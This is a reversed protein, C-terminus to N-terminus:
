FDRGLIGWYTLWPSGSSVERVSRTEAHGDAFLMPGVGNPTESTEVGGGRDHLIFDEYLVIKASPFVVGSLLQPGVLDIRLPSMADPEFFAPAALFATSYVYTSPLAPTLGQFVAGASPTMVPTVTADIAGAQGSCTWHLRAERSSSMLLGPWLWGVGWYAVTVSEDDVRIVGLPIEGQQAAAREPAPMTDRHETAYMFIDVASSKANGVCAIEGARSGALRLAPSALSLLVVVVGIIILIEVLTFARIASTGCSDLLSGFINHDKIM